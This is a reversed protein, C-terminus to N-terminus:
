AELRSLAAIRRGEETAFSIGGGTSEYFIGDNLLGQLDAPITAGADAMGWTVIGGDNCVAAFTQSNAYIARINVLRAAVETTSGGLEPNGWAFVTGDRCLAAFAGSTGVVQVVDSLSALGISSAGGRAADGWVVVRGNSRRACFAGWTATVEEIDDMQAVEAPLTGGHTEQGWALVRNDRTRVAFARATASSLEVIDTRSTVAMGPSGGDEPVGWALVTGNSRRVVFASFNGRVDVVDQASLVEAPATGGSAPTGWALVQKNSRLACFANGTGAILVADNIQQASASLTAGAAAAGWATLYGNKAVAVFATGNGYIASVDTIDLGGNPLAGGQTSTGWALVRGNERRLTFAGQTANVTVVDTFSSYNPNAAGGASAQGWTVINNSALLATFAASVNTASDLGAGFLNSRNITVQHQSSRVKLPVWPRTDKFSTGQKWSLEDAYCWEALLDAKTDRNLARLYQAAGSSRYSGVDGRAGMVLLNGSGLERRVDYFTPSSLELNGKLKRTISYSLSISHDNNNDVYKRPVDYTFDKLADAVTQPGFTASTESGALGSWVITVEDGLLLMAKKDIRVRAGAAPVDDPSISTGKAQDIVAMPLPSTQISVFESASAGLLTSGRRWAYSVNVNSGEGAYVTDAPVVIDDVTHSSSVAYSQSDFSAGPINSNWHLTVSDGFEMSANVPIRVTEGDPVERPDLTGGAEHVLVPKELVIVQTQVKATYIKSKIERNGRTVTYMLPVSQDIFPTIRDLPLDETLDIGVKKKTIDIPESEWGNGIGGAWSIRVSDGAAMDAYPAIRITAYGHSVLTSPDLLGDHAEDISPAALLDEAEVGVRLRLSESKLVQAGRTITYRVDAIRNRWPEVDKPNMRFTYDRVTSITNGDEYYGVDGPNGWYMDIEDGAQMKLFSQVRTQVVSSLKEPDLYDEDAQVVVPRPWREEGHVALVLNESNVTTGDNRLVEYNVVVESNNFFDVKSQPIDATLDTGVLGSSVDINDTEQGAGTGRGFWYTVLDGRAMGAYPRIRLHAVGDQLNAPDLVGASAEDIIPPALDAEQKPEVRFQNLESGQQVTVGNRLVDYRATVFAYSAANDVIISRKVTVPIPQNRNGNTITVTGTTTGAATQATWYWTVVDGTSMDAWRPIVMTAGNPALSEDLIGQLVGSVEPKDLLAQGVVTLKLHQSEYQSAGHKVLYFVDVTGGALRNVYEADVLFSIPLKEEGAIVLHAVSFYQPRGSADVGNWNLVVSDGAVVGPLADINVHAGAEVDAPNILSGKSEVVKPAALSKASGTVTLYRRKSQGRKQGSADKVIYYLSATGPVVWSLASNSVSMFILSGSGVKTDSEEHTAIDFDSNGDFVLQVTDDALMSGQRSIVVTANGQLEDFDLTGEPAQAVQPAEYADGSAHVLVATSSSFRSWQHVANDIEYTIKMEDADGEALILEPTVTVVVNKGLEQSTLPSHKIQQIGWLVTLVDNVLMNKWPKVTVQIGSAAEAPGIDVESVQPADLNKNLYPSETSLGDEGGPISTQVLVTSHSSTITEGVEGSRRTYWVDVLGDGTRKVDAVSVQMTFPLSRDDNSVLHTDVARSGDGWFLTVTDGSLYELNAPIQVAVFGLPNEIDRYGVGGYDLAVNVVPPLLGAWAKSTVTGSGGNEHVLARHAAASHIAQISM